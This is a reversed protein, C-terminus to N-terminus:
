RAIRCPQGRLICKPYAVPVEIGTVVSLVIGSPHDAGHAIQVTEGDSITLFEWEARNGGPADINIRLRSGARFAHAFPFIEVRVSTWENAPLPAADKEYHGQVPRLVTSQETDLVRHSARLWGSQVYMEQGDPRIESVTVELDTDPTSSQIFLDASGSGAIVTTEALPASTFTAATGDTNYPWDWKVGAKWISGSDKYFTQAISKPDAKYSDSKDSPDPLDPTLTKDDGLYWTTAIAQPIPWSEFASIWRPSASGSAVGDASGEEFLVHVRPEAEYASLAEEYSKGIFRDPGFDVGNVGIITSALLPAVLKAATLSPNKRAVYLDLFEVLRPFIGTSVLSETHLGNVLYVYLQPASTFQDLMTAFHGGTQEDQWAGALFVPVNIKGVFMRPNIEDGVEPTYFQEADIEALLDPNQGRLKQNTACVTDGKDVLGQEWGQGFPKAQEVRQKTWEVAFGTNLIGGPYLTARASDDLVSLPTIAALSPPQTSAAFLQSIGPYSIGVMGVKNFKVWPQAAIAEIADYADLRQMPEFFRFSGGSCGTGRMNVGIYAYGLANILQGFITDGPNSPGYGSYEVVTPFPGKSIKGPLMVNISLTTGDRTTLYGFGPAKLSQSSYFGEPAAVDLANVDVPTSETKTQPSRVTLSRSPAKRFLAAGEADASITQLVTKKDSILQLEEGVSAGTVLVQEWGGTVVYTAPDLTSKSGGCSVLLSMSLAAITTIRPLAHKM